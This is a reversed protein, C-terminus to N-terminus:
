SDDPDAGAPPTPGDHEKDGTAAHPEHRRYADRDSESTGRDTSPQDSAPETRFMQLWALSVHTAIGVLALGLLQRHVVAALSHQWVPAHHTRSRAQGIM